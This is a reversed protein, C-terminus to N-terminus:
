AGPTYMKRRPKCVALITILSYFFNLLLFATEPIKCLRSKNKMVEEAQEVIGM